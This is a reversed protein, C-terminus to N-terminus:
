GLSTTAPASIPTTPAINTRYQNAARRRPNAIRRSPAITGSAPGENPCRLLTARSGDPGYSASAAFAQYTGGAAPWRSCHTNIQWRRVGGGDINGDNHGHAVLGFVHARQDGFDRRREVTSPLVFDDVDIVARGIRGGLPNGRDHLLTFIQPLDM